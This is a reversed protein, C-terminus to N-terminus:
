SGDLDGWTAISRRHRDLRDRRRLPAPDAPHDRCSVATPFKPQDLGPGEAIPRWGQLESACCSLGYTREPELDLDLGLDLDVVPHKLAKRRRYVYHM